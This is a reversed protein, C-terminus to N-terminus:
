EPDQGRKRRPDQSPGWSLACVALDSEHVRATVIGNRTRTAYRERDTRESRAQSPRDTRGLGRGSSSRDFDTGSLDTLTTPEFEPSNVIDMGLCKASSRQVNNSIDSPFTSTVCTLMKFFVELM